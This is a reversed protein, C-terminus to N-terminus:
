GVGLGHIRIEDRRLDYRYGHEGLLESFGEMVEVNSKLARMLKTKCCIIVDATTPGVKKSWRKGTMVVMDRSDCRGRRAWRKIIPVLQAPSVAYNKKPNAPMLSRREARQRRKPITRKKILEPYRRKAYQAMAQAYRQIEQKSVVGGFEDYVRQLHRELLLRFSSRTKKAQAYIGAVYAAIEEDNFYNRYFAKKRGEHPSEFWKEKRIGAQRTHELEHRLVEVLEAHLGQLTYRRDKPNNHLRVLLDIEEFRGKRSQLVGSITTDGKWKIVELFM